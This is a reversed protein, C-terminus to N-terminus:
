FVQGGIIGLLRPASAGNPANPRSHSFVITAIQLASGPVLAFLHLNHRTDRRLWRLGGAIPILLIGLPGALSLAALAFVDLFKRLRGDQPTGLLLLCGAVALRWHLNTLIAHTEYCNPLVLYFLSGALRTRMPITAFRSSLLIHVPLIEVVLASLNMVLPAMSFPFLLTFLGVLRSLTNFYGDLPMLLCHWGSQYADAYWYKGDEAWFPAHFVADPRRSILIALAVAFVAAHFIVKGTEPVERRTPAPTIQPPGPPIAQLSM